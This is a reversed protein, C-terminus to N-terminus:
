VTGYPPKGLLARLSVCGAAILPQSALSSDRTGELPATNFQNIKSSDDSLAMAAEVIERVIVNRIQLRHGSSGFEEGAFSTNLRVDRRECTFSRLLKRWSVDGNGSGHHVRVTSPAVHRTREHTSTEMSHDHLRFLHIAGSDACAVALTGNDSAVEAAVIPATAAAAITAPTAATAAAAAAAASGGGITDGGGRINTSLRKRGELTVEAGTEFSFIRISDGITLYVYDSGTADLVPSVAFVPCPFSGINNVGLWDHRVHQRLLDLSKLDVLFVMVTSQLAAVGGSTSKDSAGESLGAGGDGAVGPGSGGALPRYTAVVALEGGSTTLKAGTIRGERAVEFAKSRVASKLEGEEDFRAVIAQFYIGPQRGGARGSTHGDPLAIYTKARGNAPTPATSWLTYAGGARLEQLAEEPNATESAAPPLARNFIYGPRGKGGGGSGSGDSRGVNRTNKTADLKYTHLTVDVMVEKSPTYWGFGSFADPGYPWVCLLGSTDLTVMTLSGRDQFGVFIVPNRHREFFERRATNRSELGGGGNGSGDSPADTKRMTAEYQAGRHGPELPVLCRGYIVGAGANGDHVEDGYAAASWADANCKVVSGGATGIVVSHQHGFATTAPHFAVCTARVDMKTSAPWSGDADDRHGGTEVSSSPLTGGNAWEEEHQGGRMSGQRGSGKSKDKKSSNAAIAAGSELWAATGPHLLPRELGSKRITWRSAVLPLAQFKHGSNGGGGGGVGRLDPLFDRAATRAGGGDVGRANTGQAAAVADWGARMDWVKVIDHSDFSVLQSRGDAGFRVRKVPCREDKPMSSSGAVCALVAASSKVIEKSSSKTGGSKTGGSKTGFASTGPSISGERRPMAWVAIGGKNTGAALLFTGWSATAGAVGSHMSTTAAAPGRGTTASGGTGDVSATAGPGMAIATVLGDGKPVAVSYREASMHDFYLQESEPLDEHSPPRYPQIDTLRLVVRATVDRVGKRASVSPNTGDNTTSTSPLTQRGIERVAALAEGGKTKGTSPPKSRSESLLFERFSSFLLDLVPGSRQAQAATTVTDGVSGGTARSRAASAAAFASSAIATGVVGLAVVSASTLHDLAAKIEDSIHEDLITGAAALLDAQNAALRAEEEMARNAVKLNLRDAELTLSRPGSIPSSIFLAEWAHGKGLSGTALWEEEEALASAQSRLAEIRSVTEGERARLDAVLEEMDLALAAGEGGAGEKGASEESSEDDKAGGTEEQEEERLSRGGRRQQHLAVKGGDGGHGVGDEKEDEGLGGAATKRSTSVASINKAASASSARLFADIAASRRADERAEEWRQREEEHRNRDTEGAAVAEADAGERKAEVVGAERGRRSIMSEGGRSSGSDEEHTDGDFADRDRRRVENATAKSIDMKTLAGAAMTSAWTSTAAPPAPTELIRFAAPGLEERALSKLGDARAARIQQMKADASDAAATLLQRQENLKRRVAEHARMSKRAARRRVIDIEAAVKALGGSGRGRHPHQNSGLSFAAEGEVEDEESLGEGTALASSIPDSLGEGAHEQLHKARLLADELRRGKDRRRRIKEEEIADLRRLRLRQEEELTRRQEEVPHIDMMKRALKDLQLGREVEWAEREHELHQLKFVEESGQLEAVRRLIGHRTARHELASQDLQKMREQLAAHKRRYSGDKDERWEARKRALVSKHDVLDELAGAMDHAMSLGLCAGSSGATADRPLNCVVE